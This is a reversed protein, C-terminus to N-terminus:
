FVAELPLAVIKEDIMEIREGSYIVAGLKTEPHFKMFERLHATDSFTVEKGLKTEIPLVLKGQELVFDVERGDVTRWHYVAPKPALTEAWARIQSLVFTEFMAGAEKTNKLGDRDFHGTLFCALGADFWYFKPAKILRKGRNRFYAPVRHLMNTTELLGLHRHITPQSIGLERSIETQNLPQGSRLATAAMLRRFDPLDSVSSAERLDRELYTATYGEWWRVQQGVELWMLPPLMGRLMLSLYDRRPAAAPKPARGGLLDTLIQKPRRGDEEGLTMPGLWFYAARGALSESVHRMLLLNSSGSLVARVAGRDVDRKLALLLEPARQVEDIVVHPRGAWLGAPSERAQRLTQYDDLTVYHWDRFPAQNQLLTSKGTQRAGSLVLVRHSKAARALPGALLREKYIWERRSHYKNM